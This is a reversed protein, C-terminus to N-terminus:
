EVTSMAFDHLTYNENGLWHERAVHQRAVLALKVPLIGDEHYHSPYREVKPLKNKISMDFINETSGEENIRNKISNLRELPDIKIEDKFLYSYNILKETYPFFRNIISIDGVQAMYEKIYKDFFVIGELCREISRVELYMENRKYFFAGLVITNLSNVKSSTKKFKIHKSEKHYLWVYRDLNKDYKVCKLKRFVRKISEKNKINYYIRVPQFIEGTTTILIKDKNM